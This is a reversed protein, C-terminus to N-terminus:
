IQKGNRMPFGKRKEENYHEDFWVPKEIDYDFIYDSIQKLDEKSVLLKPMVGFRRVAGYMRANDETQNDFWNQIDEVFEAKNTHAAVYHKKVAIMPPALRQEHSATPSHCVNCQREMLVKGPHEEQYTSEIAYSSKKSDQCGILFALLILPVLPKM